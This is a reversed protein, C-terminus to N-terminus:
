KQGHQNLEYIVVGPDLECLKLLSHAAAERLVLPQDKGTYECLVRVVPHLMNSFMRLQVCIPGLAYLLRKQVSCATLCEYSSTKGSSISAGKQLFSVLSAVLDSSVRSRIFTGAVFTLTSFLEFAQQVIAPHRDQIRALLPSWIKHVLPLLIDEDTIVLCGDSLLCMSAMKVRPENSSMLHTCRLMIEEVLRFHPKRYVPKDSTVESVDTEHDNSEITDKTSVGTLVYNHQKRTSALLQTAKSFTRECVDSLTIKDVQRNRLKEVMNEKRKGLESPDCIAPPKIPILKSGSSTSGIRACLAIVKRLVMIFSSAAFQYSLDMCLLMQMVLPQLRYIVDANTHDVFYSLSRCTQQLKLMLAPSPSTLDDSPVALFIAHFDINLSCLISESVVSLFDELKAYGCNASICELAKQATSSLLGDGAAFSFMQMIYPLIEDPYVTSEESSRWISSTAVICEIFICSKLCELKQERSRVSPTKIVTPKSSLPWQALSTQDVETELQLYNREALKELLTLALGFRESKPLDDLSPFGSLTFHFCVIPCDFNGNFGKPFIDDVAGCSSLASLCASLLILSSSELNEDAIGIELLTEAVFDFNNCTSILLRMVELTKHLNAPNRFHVFQKRFLQSVSNSANSNPSLTNIQDVLCIDELQLELYKCLTTLFNEWNVKNGMFSSIVTPGLYNIVGCLRSLLSRTINEDRSGQLGNDIDKVIDVIIQLSIDNIVERGSLPIEIEHTFKQSESIPFNRGTIESLLDSAKNFTSCGEEINVIILARILDDRLNQAEANLNLFHWCSKLIESSFALVSDFLRQKASASYTVVEAFISSLCIHVLKKLHKVSDSMLSNFQSLDLQASTDKDLSKISECVDMGFCVCIVRALAVLSKAKITSNRGKEGVISALLSQSLGPLMKLFYSARLAIKFSRATKLKKEFHDVLAHIAKISDLRLDDSRQSRLLELFRVFLHGLIPLLSRNSINKLITPPRLLCIEVMKLICRWSDDSINSADEVNLKFLISSLDELVTNYNMNNDGTLIEKCKGLNKEVNGPTTSNMLYIWVCNSIKHNNKVEEIQFDKSNLLLEGLIGAGSSPLM